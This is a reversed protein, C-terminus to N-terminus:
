ASHLRNLSVLLNNIQYRRQRQVFSKAALREISFDAMCSHKAHDIKRDGALIDADCTPVFKHSNV